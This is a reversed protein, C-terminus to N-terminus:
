NQSMYELVDQLGEKHDACLRTKYLTHAHTFTHHTCVAFRIHNVKGKVVITIQSSVQVCIFQMGIGFHSITFYNWNIVENIIIVLTQIFYLHFHFSNLIHDNIYQQLHSPSPVYNNTVIFLFRRKQPNQM